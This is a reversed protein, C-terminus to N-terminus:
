WGAYDGQKKVFVILILNKDIKQNSEENENLESQEILAWKRWSHILLFANDVGIGFVLFPMIPMISNFKIGIWGIISFAVSISLLPSLLSSTILIFKFSYFINKQYGLETEPLKICKDRGFREM